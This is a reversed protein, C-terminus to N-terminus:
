EGGRDEADAREDGPAVDRAVSVPPLLRWWGVLWRMGSLILAAVLTFLGVERAIASFALTVLKEDGYQNASLGATLLWLAIGCLALWWAAAAFPNTSYRDKM